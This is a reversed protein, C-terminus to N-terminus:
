GNKGGIEKTCEIIKKDSRMKVIKELKRDFANKAVIYWGHGLSCASNITSQCNFNGSAKGVVRKDYKEPRHFYRYLAVIKQVPIGVKNPDPSQMYERILDLVTHGKWSLCVKSALVYAAYFNMEKTNVLYVLARVFGPDERIYRFNSLYGYALSPSMNEINLVLKSVDKGVWGYRVYGPLLKHRRLMKIYEKKEKLTLRINGKDDPMVYLIRNPDEGGNRLQRVTRLFASFCYGNVHYGKTGEPMTVRKGEERYLYYDVDHNETHKTKSSVKEKSIISSQAM